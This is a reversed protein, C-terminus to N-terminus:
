RATAVEGTRDRMPVGGRRGLGHALRLLDPLDLDGNTRLRMAGVSILDEILGYGNAHRPGVPGGPAPPRGLLTSRSWLDLAQDPPIPVQLGSLPNLADAIWPASRALEKARERTGTLMGIRAAAHHVARDHAPHSDATFDVAGLLAALFSRPSVRGAADQLYSPLWSYFTGRRPTGDIHPDILLSLLHRQTDPDSRLDNPTDFSGDEELQWGAHLSRFAAAEPGPHNGLLQFLLGYLAVWRDASYSGRVWSLDAKHHRWRGDARGVRLGVLVDPRVFLKIRPRSTSPFLASAEALATSLDLVAQVHREVTARDSHLMELGDFLVLVGSDEAACRAAYRDLADPTSAVWACREAWTALSSMEIDGSVTLLVATWLQLPQIGAATLNAVTVPDIASEDCGPAFGTVVRAQALRPLRCARAAPGRLAPDVLVRRLVSKGEGVAGTVVFMDSLLASRVNGTIYLRSTPSPHTTGALAGTLAEKLLTRAQPAPLGNM